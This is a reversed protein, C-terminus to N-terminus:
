GRKALWPSPDIPQGARRLEVYLETQETDLNGMLGVPEGALVWQGVIADVRALGAVLTHYGGSHEIILILGYGRFPGAFVVQGDFPAVVQAEARTRLVIGKRTVGFDTTEGFGGTLDGRAPLVVQGKAESFERLGAPRTLRAPTLSPAPERPQPEPAAATGPVPPKHSPPVMAARADLKELLDRLTQAREALRAVQASAAKRQGETEDLLARKRAFLTELKQRSRNLEAAVGAVRERRAALDAGLDSLIELEGRLIRAEDEIAPIAARLLIAGRLTDVPRGPMAILAGPPALAVRQLSGLVGALHGRQSLLAAEKKEFQGNLIAVQGELVTLEAERAQAAAAAAIMEARLGEVEERLARSATDLASEERAQAEM